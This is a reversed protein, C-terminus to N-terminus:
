AYPRKNATVGFDLRVRYIGPPLDDPLKQEVEFDVTTRGNTERAQAMTATVYQDYPTRFGYGFRNTVAGQVGGEIPLGTPTLLTSM